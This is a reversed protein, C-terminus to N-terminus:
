EDNNKEKIYHRVDYDKAIAEGVFINAEVRHVHYDWKLSVTIVITLCIMFTVLITTVQESKM